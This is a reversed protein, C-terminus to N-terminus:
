KHGDTGFRNKAFPYENKLFIFTFVKWVIKYFYMMYQCFSYQKHVKCPTSCIHRSLKIM